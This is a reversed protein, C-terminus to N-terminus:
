VAVFEVLTVEGTDHVKELKFGVPEILSKFEAVTREMSNLVSLMQMDIYYTRAMGMGWNALLPEPAQEYIADKVRAATKPSVEHILLKSGLKAAKRVNKLIVQCEADPWDHLVHRLYYYDAEVPVEKLFDLPVLKVRGSSLAEPNEKEWFVKGEELVKPLDHVVGKLKPHQKLLSHTVHGTSGGVDAVVSDEKVSEWPYVRALMARGTVEGWGIMAQNFRLGHKPSQGFFEFPSVKYATTFASGTPLVSNTKEPDSFTEDLYAFSKFGEDGTHGVYSAVAEHSRLKYSLRNNAFVGPSVETFVHKTALFRLIRYLKPENLGTEKALDAVSVGEPKGDLKDAIKNTVVTNFAAVEMHGFSKNMVTHGPPALLSVLQATAAELIKVQKAFEFSANEPIDFPGEVADKLAPLEKGAKNYEELINATTKSILDALLTAEQAM